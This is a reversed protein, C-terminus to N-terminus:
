GRWGRLVIGRASDDPETIAYRKMMRMYRTAAVLDDMEKVLKGDERHYNLYEEFWDTLHEAVLLQRNLLATRIDEIGAEVSVVSTGTDDGTEPFQAHEPLM